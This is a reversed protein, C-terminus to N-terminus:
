ESKLIATVPIILFAIWSWEWINLYYGLLMFLTTAIFPTVSIVKATGDTERLIAYVPIIFLVLWTLIWLGSVFSLAFYLILTTLVVIKYGKPVDEGGTVQINGNYMGYAVVPAFAFAAYGWMDEFTYGVYLYGVVGLLLLTEMLIMVGKREENLIGVFPIILFVLWGPVWLNQEGLYVFLLIALFPSLATIFPLFKMTRRANIISIVPIILFVVWGPHWYGYYFGLIFYAVGAVFPSLATTMNQRDNKGMEVVIATVPILIFAMWSYFWGDFGFGLVFFIILSIFPMVAILKTSSTQKQTAKKYGETLSGIISKPRGLKEEVEEDSMGYDKWNEYMDDYDNIIDQKESEEMQYRNLLERLRQLYDNKM